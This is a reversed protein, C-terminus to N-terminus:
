EYTYDIEQQDKIGLKLVEDITWRRDLDRFYCYHHTIRQEPPPPTQWNNYMHVLYDEYHEPVVIKTDEFPVEVGKGFFSKPVIEKEIPYYGCYCLYNDGQQMKITEEIALVEEHYHKARLSRVYKNFFWSLVLKLHVKRIDDILEGLTWKRISKTYKSVKKSYERMLSKATSINGANDFPFVDVFVGFIVQNNKQEWITTNADCFKAYPLIYDGSDKSRDGLNVLEHGTGKLEGRLALLKDYDKRPMAVDIDDDWPIIGKHRIAGLCTGAVAYYTLNHKDCFSTFAKLTNILTEKEKAEM